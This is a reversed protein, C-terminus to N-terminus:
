KDEIGEYFLDYNWQDVPVNERRLKLTKPHKPRAPLVRRVYLEGVNCEEFEAQKGPEICCDMPKCQADPDMTLFFPLSYREKGTKNMVRHVTAVFKGNTMRELYQGVNCVLSGAIPSANVWQGDRNLLQLASNSDQLVMTFVLPILM